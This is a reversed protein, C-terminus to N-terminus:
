CSGGWNSSITALPSYSISLVSIVFKEGKEKQLVIRNVQLKKRKARHTAEFIFVTLQPFVLLYANESNSHKYEESSDQTM